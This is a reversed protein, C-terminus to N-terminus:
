GFSLLKKHLLNKPNKGVLIIRDPVSMDLRNDIGENWPPAYMGTLDQPAFEGNVRINKPVKMRNNIELSFNPDFFGDAEGNFRTPSHTNAM